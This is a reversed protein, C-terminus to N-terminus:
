AHHMRAAIRQMRNLILKQMLRYVPLTIAEHLAGAITRLPGHGSAARDTDHATDRGPLDNTM